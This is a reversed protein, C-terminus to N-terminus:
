QSWLTQLAKVTQDTLLQGGEPGVDNSQVTASYGGGSAALPTPVYTGPGCLQILFTQLAPSKAKMQIGFQLFLEFDNTAIAIDGIRLTHLDHRYPVIEGRQQREYREAVKRHWKVRRAYKPNEKYKEAQALADEKEGKTVIREPLEIDAVQHAFPVDAFKEQKAGAYAQEWANVLRRALEGIEDLGRFANMRAEAQKRIQLHPVHDGAASIWGLVVLDDGYKAKLTERVPHIFDANIKSGSGARQAPCAMSFATAVLEDDEDWFYLFEVGTDNPGEFGRFGPKTKSGHMVASGDAYIMRRNHGLMAHAMGWGAKVNRRDDWAKEIADVVRKTFFERYESPKMVGEPIHYNGDVLVPATHTHTASLIVKAPDIEPVRKAVAERVMDRIGGRIAVLGCAVFVAQDVAEGDEWAEIALVNARVPTEVEKAVRTHMQGSLAVPLEPTISTSATGVQLSAAHGGTASLLLVAAILFHRHPM